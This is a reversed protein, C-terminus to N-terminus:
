EFAKDIASKMKNMDSIKFEFACIDNSTNLMILAPTQNEVPFNKKADPNEDVDVIDFKVKDGNEKKLEEVNKMVKDYDKDSKSVFLMFTPTVKVQEESSESITSNGPANNSSSEAANSDSKTESKTETNKDKQESKKNNDTKKDAKEEDAKEETKNDAKQVSEAGDGTLASKSTKKAGCGAAAFTLIAALLLSLLKKNM